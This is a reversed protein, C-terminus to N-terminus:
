SFKRKEIMEIIRQLGMETWHAKADKNNHFFPVGYPNVLYSALAQYGYILAVRRTSIKPIETESLYVMASGTSKKKRIFDSKLDAAKKVVEIRSAACLNSLNEEILSRSVVCLTRYFNSTTLKESPCDRFIRRLSTKSM